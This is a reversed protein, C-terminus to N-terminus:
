SGTRRVSSLAQPTDIDILIGGDGIEVECVLEGYEGILHRAGVDGSVAAIESFFRAGWIVPNGRKGNSTPVCIARGEVPDFAAVLKNVHAAAVHPMDGLCVLVGDAEEPLAGIGARLSSSLGDAYNSNHVFIVDCGDLEARVQDAEHGTVVILPGVKSALITEAVRRIMSMGGIEALLKNVSGMRRSQGAALLIAPIAPERRVGKEVLGSDHRPQPRSSIEKLLGGAGMLMIDKSTVELNAALRELVWDFGNLKPSRACGPLGLVPTRRAGGGLHGLLLLNGPDVPMGFHDITGGASELGLPVVDRRDVIASAGSILIIKSGRAHLREIAAGIATEDHDVVESAILTSGVTEVRARVTKITNQLVSQKTGPLRTLILGVQKATFPAINILPAPHLAVETAAEIVRGPVSFPIVKVTAVMQKPMVVDCHALTAITLSEDLLNIQDIRGRDVVVLGRAEAYLNCRGTFASNFSVGEGRAAGAVQTAAADESIDGADLRAAVVKEIGAVRLAVTDARSLLRGKKFAGQATRISHALLAGEAEALPMRMFKM